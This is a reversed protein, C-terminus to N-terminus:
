LGSSGFSEDIRKVMLKQRLNMTELLVKMKIKDALSFNSQKLELLPISKLNPSIKNFKKHSKIFDVLEDDYDFLVPIIKLSLLEEIMSKVNQSTAFVWGPSFLGAAYIMMEIQEKSYGTLNLNFYLGHVGYSFYEEIRQKHRPIDSQLVVFIDFHKKIEEVLIKRAYDTVQDQFSLLSYKTQYQSIEKEIFGLLTEASTDELVTITHM